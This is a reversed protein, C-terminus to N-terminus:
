SITVCSLNFVESLPMYRTIPLALSLKWGLCLPEGGQREDGHETIELSLLSGVKESCLPFNVKLFTHSHQAAETEGLHDTKPPLISQNNSIAMLM